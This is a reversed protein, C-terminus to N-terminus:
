KPAEVQQLFVLLTERDKEMTALRHRAGEIALQLITQKALRAGSLLPTVALASAVPPPVAHGNVPENVHTPGPKKGLYKKGAARRARWRAKTIASLKKRFAASSGLKRKHAAQAHRANAAAKEKNEPRQTWHM